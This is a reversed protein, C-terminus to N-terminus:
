TAAVPPGAVTLKLLPAHRQQAYLRMPAQSVQTALEFAALLPEKMLTKYFTEVWSAMAKASVMDRVAIVNAVPLLQAGLVLSASAGLVVLRTQANDILSVLAEPTIVDPDEVASDGLPLRVPTFYIHGGRPCVFAAIHLIHVQRGDTLAEKLEASNLVFQHEITEPFAGLVLSLQNAYGLERFQPSTVCIM